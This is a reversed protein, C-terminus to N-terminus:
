DCKQLRCPTWVAQFAVRPTWRADLGPMELRKNETLSARLHNNARRRDAGGHWIQVVGKVSGAGQLAQKVCSYSLQIGAERSSKM